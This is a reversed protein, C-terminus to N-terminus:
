ASLDREGRPESSWFLVGVCGGEYVAIWHDIAFGDSDIAGNSHLWLLYGWGTAIVPPPPRYTTYLFYLPGFPAMGTCLIEASGHSWDIVYEFLQARRWRGAGDLCYEAESGQYRLDQL